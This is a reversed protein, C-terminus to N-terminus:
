PLTVAGASLILANNCYPKHFNYGSNEYDSIAFPMRFIRM